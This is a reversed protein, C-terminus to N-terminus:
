DTLEAPPEFLGPDLRPNTEIKERAITYSLPGGGAEARFPFLVDGVGRYDLFRETSVVSQEVFPFAPGLSRVRVLFQWPGWFPPSSQGPGVCSYWCQLSM